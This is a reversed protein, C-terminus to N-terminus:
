GAGMAAFDPLLTRKSPIHSDFGDFGASSSAVSIEVPQAERLNSAASYKVAVNSMLMREGDLDDEPLMVYCCLRSQFLCFGHLCLGFKRQRGLEYSDAALRSNETAIPMRIMIRDGQFLVDERFLWTLECPLGENSLFQRFYCVAQDFSTEAILQGPEV